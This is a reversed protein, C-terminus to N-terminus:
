IPAWRTAYIVEERPPDMLGMVGLFRLNQMPFNIDDTDFDYNLPYEKPDLYLDAFALIREGVFM